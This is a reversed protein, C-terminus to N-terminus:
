ASSMLGNGDIQRHGGPLNTLLQYEIHPAATLKVRFLGYVVVVLPHAPGISMTVTERAHIGITFPGGGM